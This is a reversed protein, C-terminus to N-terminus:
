SRGGGGEVLAYCDGEVLYITDLTMGQMRWRGGTTVNSPRMGIM